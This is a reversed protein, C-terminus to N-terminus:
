PGPRGAGQAPVHGLTGRPTEFFGKEDPGRHALTLLSESIQTLEKIPYCGVIGCM